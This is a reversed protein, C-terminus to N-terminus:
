LPKMQPADGKSGGSPGSAADAGSEKMALRSIEKLTDEWMKIRVKGQHVEHEALQLFAEKFDGARRKSALEVERYNSTPYHSLENTTCGGGGGGCV